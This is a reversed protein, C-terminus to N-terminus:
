RGRWDRQLGKVERFVDMPILDIDRHPNYKMLDEFTRVGRAILFVYTNNTMGTLDQVESLTKHPDIM